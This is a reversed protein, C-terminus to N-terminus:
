LIKEVAIVVNLGNGEGTCAIRTLKGRGETGMRWHTAEMMGPNNDTPIFTGFWGDLDNLKLVYKVDKPTGGVGPDTKATFWFTTRAYGEDTETLLLSGKYTKDAFCVDGGRGKDFPGSLLGGSL